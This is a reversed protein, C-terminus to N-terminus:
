VIEFDTYKLGITCLHACLQKLIFTLVDFVSGLPNSFVSFMDGANNCEASMHYLTKNCVKM